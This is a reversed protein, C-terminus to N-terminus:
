PIFLDNAFAAVSQVFEVSLLLSIGGLSELSTLIILIDFLVTKFLQLRM